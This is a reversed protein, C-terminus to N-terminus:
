TSRRRAALWGPHIPAMGTPVDWFLTLCADCGYLRRHAFWRMVWATLASLWGPVFVRHVDAGGCEPCRHNHTLGAPGSDQAQAQVPVAASM